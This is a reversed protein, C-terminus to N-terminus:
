RPNVDDVAKSPLESDDCDVVDDHLFLCLLFIIAGSLCSTPLILLLDGNRSFNSSVSAFVEGTLPILAALLMPEDRLFM